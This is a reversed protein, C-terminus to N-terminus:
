ASLGRFLGLAAGPGAAPLARPVAASGAVIHPVHLGMTNLVLATRTSRPGRGLAHRELSTV